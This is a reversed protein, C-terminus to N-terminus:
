QIYLFIYRIYKDIKYLYIILFLCLKKTRPSIIILMDYMCIVCKFVTERFVLITTCTCSVDSVVSLNVVSCRDAGRTQFLNINTPIVKLVIEM